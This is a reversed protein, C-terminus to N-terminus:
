WLTFLLTRTADASPVIRLVAERTTIPFEFQLVHEIISPDDAGSGSHGGTLPVETGDATATMTAIASKRATFPWVPEAPISTDRETMRVEVFRHGPAAHIQGPTTEFGRLRAVVGDAPEVRVQRVAFEIDGEQVSVNLPFPGLQETQLQQQTGQSVPEASTGCATLGLVVILCGARYLATRARVNM